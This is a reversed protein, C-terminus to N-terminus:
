RVIRKLGDRLLPTNFNVLLGARLGTAQLYSVVQSQHIAELRSVAKLEVILKGEAVLDLRQGQIIRGKYIVDISKEEEFSVHQDALELCMATRYITELFGVGLHRHVELACGIVKHMLDELDNPLASTTRTLM